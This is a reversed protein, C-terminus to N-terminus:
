KLLGPILIALFALLMGIAYTGNLTESANIITRIVFLFIMAPTNCHFIKMISNKSNLKLAVGLVM